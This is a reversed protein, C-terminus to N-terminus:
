PASTALRWGQAFGAALVRGDRDPDMLRRMLPAAADDPAVVLVEAGQRRLTLAQMRAAGRLAGGLVGATPELVLVRDGERVVAADVNVPSWAGGDVYTREGIRVPRFVGPIACSAVVADAVSATPAGPAGFVVRRGRDREVACVRLRGDFTAGSREVLRHLADLSRSGRPVVRLGGALLLRGPPTALALTGSAIGGAARTFAGAVAAGGGAPVAEDGARASRDATEGPRRPSRGAALGAAVISGASTGVFCRATTVDGGTVDEVGALLGTM